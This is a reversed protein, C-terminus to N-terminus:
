QGQEQGGPADPAEDLTDNFALEVLTDLPDEEDTTANAQGDVAGVATEAAPEESASTAGAVVGLALVLSAALASRAFSGLLWPLRVAPAAAARLPIEAVARRLGASPELAVSGDLLDDLAAAERLARQAAPDRALRAQAAARAVRRGRAPAAGYTDFLQLLRARSLAPHTPETM